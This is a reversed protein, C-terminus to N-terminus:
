GPTVTFTVSGGLTPDADDMGSITYNGAEQLVRHDFTHSGMDDATFTYDAQYMAPGTATFHVTGLYGTVTNGYVDQVVVTIAFPVGATIPDPLLFALHDAAAPTITFSTSGTILPNGTDAGTVTDAGALHRVLGAFTHQGMDDATFTYSATATGAGTLTFQVTGTYGTVPQGFDDLVAVTIAFATGAQISAPGTFALHTAQGAPQV